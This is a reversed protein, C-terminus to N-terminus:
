LPVRLSHFKQYKMIHIFRIHSVALFSFLLTAILLIDSSPSLFIIGFMGVAAAPSPLGSFISSSEQKYLTFRILRGLICVAFLIGLWWMDSLM